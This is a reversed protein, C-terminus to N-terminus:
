AGRLEELCDVCGAKECVATIVDAPLMGEEACLELLTGAPTGLDALIDQDGGPEGEARSSAEEDDDPDEVLASTADSFLLAAIDSRVVVRSDSVFVRPEADGDVRVIGLWEDDEEVLLLAPADGEALDRLQDTVADLDAYDDLDLERGSWGGETRVLATAVYAM